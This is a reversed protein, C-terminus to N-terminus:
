RVELERDLERPGDAERDVLDAAPGVHIQSHARARCWADVVLGLSYGHGTWLALRASSAADENM